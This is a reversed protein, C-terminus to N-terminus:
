CNNEGDDWYRILKSLLDLRDKLHDDLIVELIIECFKSKSLKRRNQRSVKHRFKLHVQELSDILEVPLHITMKSKENIEYDAKAYDTM